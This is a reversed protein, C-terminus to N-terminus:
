SQSKNRSERLRNLLQNNQRISEYMKQEHEQDSFWHACNVDIVGQHFKLGKKLGFFGLCISQWLSCNALKAAHWQFLFGDIQDKIM